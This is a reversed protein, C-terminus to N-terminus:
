GYLSMSEKLFM